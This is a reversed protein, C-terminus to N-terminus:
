ENEEGSIKRLGEPLDYIKPPADTRELKTVKVVRTMKPAIPSEINEERLVPFSHKFKKLTGYLPKLRGDNKLQELVFTRYEDRNYAQGEICIWFKLSIESFDADGSAAFLRCPFGNINKTDGTDKVTWDYQPEYDMGLTHIDQVKSRKSGTNKKIKEETYTREDLDIQWTLGLDKRTIWVANDRQIYSKIDTLWYEFVYTRTYDMYTRSNEITAHVDSANATVGPLLLFLAFSLVFTKRMKIRM